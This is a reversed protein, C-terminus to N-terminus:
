EHPHPSNGKEFRDFVLDLHAPSASLLTVGEPLAVNNRTITFSRTGPETVGSLDLFVKLDRVTGPRLNGSADRLELQVSEPVGSRLVLDPLLNAFYVEAPEGMTVVPGAATLIWLVVAVALSGLKWGLNRALLRNLTRPARM